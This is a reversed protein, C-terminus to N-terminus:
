RGSLKSRKPFKPVLFLMWHEEPSSSLTGNGNRRKPCPSVSLKSQFCTYSHSHRFVILLRLMGIDVLPVAYNIGSAEHSIRIQGHDPQTAETAIELRMKKRQPVAFSTDPATYITPLSTSLASSDKVRLVTSASNNDHNADDDDHRRKKSSPQQSVDPALMHKATYRAIDAFLQM